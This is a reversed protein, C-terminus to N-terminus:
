AMGIDMGRVHVKKWPCLLSLLFSFGAMGIAVAFAAKIGAMYAMLIGPMQDPSFVQRLEAAGTAILVEPDVSPASIALTSIARNVFGAQAGSLSFAGGLTQFFYLIASATSIDEADVNAHVVNLCNQYPFAIAAGSLIQYGIWKATSTDIDMNYFLGCAVMSIAAGLAMFPVAHGTASVTIGGALVFIGVAIVMALNDVGSGVADHGLISQFYLPLYYLLLFYTGAFFFQFTSPAWLARQKLLRPVLMAREGMYAEWIGLAGMLAAFGIILGIVQSSNWAYTVGAYQFGLIFCIISGMALVIGVPDMHIIKEVTSAKLPKAAASLHFFFQIGAIVVGGIPLNIYFCWRWTVRDSFAGGVLPGAVAAFAYTVGIIGMYIPRKKPEVCFAIITTGGTVIGAGGVGSIARGVILVVSNPAVGCILSGVEFIFLCLLFTFKISFYKFAKGWSSQFGGLTMSYAAGYWSQESLSKFEDTIKPIATGVITQDLAILFISTCVSVVLAILHLGHPYNDASLDDSLDDSSDALADGSSDAKEEYSLQTPGM